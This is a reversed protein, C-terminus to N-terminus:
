VVCVLGSGSVFHLDDIQVQHGLSAANLQVLQSDRAKSEGLYWQSCWESFQHMKYIYPFM